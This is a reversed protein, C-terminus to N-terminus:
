KVTVVLKDATLIKHYNGGEAGTQYSFIYQGDATKVFSDTVIMREAWKNYTATPTATYGVFTCGEITINYSYGDLIHDLLIASRADTGTNKFSCDKVTLNVVQENSEKYIKIGYGNTEFTCGEFVVDTCGYGVQTVGVDFTCGKFVFKSGITQMLEGTVFCDEFVVEGGRACIGSIQSADFTIGKFTLNANDQYSLKGEYGPNTNV